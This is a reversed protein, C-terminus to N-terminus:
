RKKKLKVKLHSATLWKERLSVHRKINKVSEWESVDRKKKKKKRKKLEFIVIVSV